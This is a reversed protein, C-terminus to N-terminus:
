EGQALGAVCQDQAAQRGTDYQLGQGPLRGRVKSPLQAIAGELSPDRRYTRRQSPPVVTVPVDIGFTQGEDWSWM